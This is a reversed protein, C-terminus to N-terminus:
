FVVECKRFFASASEKILKSGYILESKKLGISTEHTSISDAIKKEIAPQPNCIIVCKKKDFGKLDDPSVIKLGDVENNPFKDFMADVFVVEKNCGESVLRAVARGLSGVCFIFIKKFNKLDPLLKEICIKKIEDAIGNVLIKLEEVPVKNEFVNKFLSIETDALKNPLLKTNVIKQTALLVRMCFLSKYFDIIEYCLKKQTEDLNDFRNKYNNLDILCCLLDIARDVGQSSKLTGPRSIYKYFFGPVNIVSKASLMAMANFALDEGVYANPFKIDNTKLFDKKFLYPQIQAPLFINDIFAAQLRNGKFVQLQPLKNQLDYNTFVGATDEFGLCVIDSEKQFDLLLQLVSLDIEDDDDIFLIYSGRALDIGRNRSYGPGRNDDNNIVNFDFYVQDNSVSKSLFSEFDIENIKRKPDDNVVIIEASVPSTLHISKFINKLFKVPRNTAVVISLFVVYKDTATNKLM